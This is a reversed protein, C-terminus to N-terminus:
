VFLNSCHSPLLRQRGAADTLSGKRIPTRDAASNKPLPLVHQGQPPQRAARCAGCRCGGPMCGRTSPTHCDCAKLKCSIVEWREGMSGAAALVHQTRRHFVSRRVM